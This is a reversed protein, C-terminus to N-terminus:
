RVGPALLRVAEKGALAALPVGVAGSEPRDGLMVAEGPVAGEGALEQGGDTLAGAPDDALPPFPPAVRCLHLSQQGGPDRGLVEAREVVVVPVVEPAQPPQDVGSPQQPQATVVGGGA